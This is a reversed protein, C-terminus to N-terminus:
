PALEVTRHALPRALWDAPIDGPRLPLGLPLDLPASAVYPVGIARLALPLAVGDTVLPWHGVGTRVYVIPAEPLSTRRLGDVRLTSPLRSHLYNSIRGTEYVINVLRHQPSSRLWPLLGYDVYLADLLVVTDLSSNALWEALTRFAGSHGVAVLRAAPMPIDIGGAVADVLDGLSPWAIRSWKSRPAEPAVFMANIGCLAFQEALRYSAWAQDVNIWYGHVFVITAATAADYGDPIWVHVPGHETTIRWHRGAAVRQALVEAAPPASREIGAGAGAGAATVAGVVSADISPAAVALDAPAHADARVSAPSGGLAMAVAIAGIRAFRSPTVEGTDGIAPPSDFFIPRSRAAGRTAAGSIAARQLADKRTV